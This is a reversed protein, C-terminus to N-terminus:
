QSASEGDASAIEKKPESLLNIPRAYESSSRNSFDDEQVTETDSRFLHQFLNLM